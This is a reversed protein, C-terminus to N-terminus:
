DRSDDKTEACCYGRGGGHRLWGRDVSGLDSDLTESVKTTPTWPLTVTEAPSSKVSRVRAKSERAADMPSPM